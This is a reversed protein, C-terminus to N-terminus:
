TSPTWPGLSGGSFCGPFLWRVCCWVLRGRMDSEASRSSVECYLDCARGAVRGRSRVDGLHAGDRAPSSWCDGDLRPELCQRGAGMLFLHQMNVHSKCTSMTVRMNVHIKKQVHMNPTCCMDVHLVKEQHGLSASRSWGGAWATHACGTRLCLGLVYQSVGGCTYPVPGPFLTKQM